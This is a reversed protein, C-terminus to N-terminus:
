SVPAAFTMAGAVRQVNESYSYCAPAVSALM